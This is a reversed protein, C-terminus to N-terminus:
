TQNPRQSPTASHRSITMQEGANKQNAKAAQLGFCQAILTALVVREPLRYQITMREVLRELTRGIDDSMATLRDGVDAESM